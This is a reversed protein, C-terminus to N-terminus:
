RANILAERAEKYGQYEQNEAVIEKLLLESEISLQSKLIEIQVLQAEDKIGENKKLKELQQAVEKARRIRSDLVNSM